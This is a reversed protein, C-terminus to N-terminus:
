WKWNAGNAAGENCDFPYGVTTLAAGNDNSTASVLYHFQITSALGGTISREAQHDVQLEQQQIALEKKLSNFQRVLLSNNTGQLTVSSGSSWSVRM